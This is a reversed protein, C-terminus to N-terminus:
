QTVDTSREIPSATLNRTSRKKPLKSIANGSKDIKYLGGFPGKVTKSKITPYSGLWCYDTEM